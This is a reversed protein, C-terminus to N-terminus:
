ASLLRGVSGARAAGGVEPGARRLLPPRAIDDGVPAGAGVVGDVGVGGALLAVVGGGAVGDAGGGEV